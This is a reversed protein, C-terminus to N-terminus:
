KGKLIYLYKDISQFKSKTQVNEPPLCVWFSGSHPNTSGSSSLVQLNSFSFRERSLFYLGPAYAYVALVVIFILACNKVLSNMKPVFIQLNTIFIIYYFPFPLSHIHFRITSQGREM